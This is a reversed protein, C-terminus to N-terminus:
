LLLMVSEHLSKEFTTEHRMYGKYLKERYCYVVNSCYTMYLKIVDKFSWLSQWTLAAAADANRWHLSSNSQIKMSMISDENVYLQHPSGSTILTNIDASCNRFQCILINGRINNNRTDKEIHSDDKLLDIIICGLHLEEKVVIIHSDSLCFVCTYKTKRSITCNFVFYKNNALDFCAWLNYLKQPHRLFVIGELNM